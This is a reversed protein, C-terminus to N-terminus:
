DENKEGVKPSYSTSIVISNQALMMLFEKNGKTIKVADGGAQRLSNQLTHINDFMIEIKSKNM